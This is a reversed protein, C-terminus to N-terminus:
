ILNIALSFLRNMPLEITKTQRKSAVVNQLPVSQTTVRFNDIKIMQMLHCHLSPPAIM